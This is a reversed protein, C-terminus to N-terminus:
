YRYNVCVCAHVSVCVCYVCYVRVCVCFLIVQDMLHQPDSVLYSDIYKHTEMEITALTLLHHLCSKVELVQDYSNFLFNCHADASLYM